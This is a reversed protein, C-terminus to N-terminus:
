RFYVTFKERSFTVSLSLAGGIAFGYLPMRWDYPKPDKEHLPHRLEVLGFLMGWVTPALWFVLDSDSWPSIRRRPDHKEYWREEFDAPPDTPVYVKVRALSCASLM